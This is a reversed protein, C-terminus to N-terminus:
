IKHKEIWNLIKNNKWSKDDSNLQDINIDVYKEGNFFSKEFCGVKKFGFTKSIKEAAKHEAVYFSKLTKLNLRKFAIEILLGYTELSHVGSNYEKEGIIVAIDAYRHVWNIGSLNCVGIHKDNKIDIISLVLRNKSKNIENFFSEQAEISNPWWRDALYKTIKYDSFWEHWRGSVDEKEPSRLYVFKGIAYPNKMNIKNKKM